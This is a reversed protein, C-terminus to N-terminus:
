PITPKEKPNTKLSPLRSLHTSLEAWSAVTELLVPLKELLYKGLKKWSHLTNWAINLQQFRQMWSTGPEQLELLLNLSARVRRIVLVPLLAFTRGCRLCLMRPVEIPGKTEAGHPSNRRYFGHCHVGFKHCHFCLRDQPAKDILPNPLSLIRPLIPM